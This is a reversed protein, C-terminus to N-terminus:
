KMGILVFFYSKLHEVSHITLQSQSRASLVTSHMYTFVTYSLLASEPYIIHPMTLTASPQITGLVELGM